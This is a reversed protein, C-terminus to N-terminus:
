LYSPLGSEIIISKAMATIIKNYKEALENSKHNYAPTPNWLIDNNSLVQQFKKKIYKGGNDSVFEKINVNFYNNVYKVFDKFVGAANSKYKLFKIWVFRTYDDILTIYM